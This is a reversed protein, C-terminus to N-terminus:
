GDTGPPPTQREVPQTQHHGRRTHHRVLTEFIRNKQVTLKDNIQIGKHTVEYIYFRQLADLMRGKKAFHIIDMINEIPGFKHGEDLLHQAFKSLSFTLRSRQFRRRYYNKLKLITYVNPPLSLHTHHVTHVPIPSRAARRVYTEFITIAHDLDLTTHVPLDLDLALDLTTRFLPWDAQPYNYRIRPNPNTPHLLIKFAVPKHDSSLASVFVLLIIMDKEYGVQITFSSITFNMVNGSMNYLWNFLYVPKCIFSNRVYLLM